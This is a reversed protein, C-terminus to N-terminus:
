MPFMAPSKKGVGSLDDVAIVHFLVQTIYGFRDVSSVRVLASRPSFLPVLLEIVASQLRQQFNQM